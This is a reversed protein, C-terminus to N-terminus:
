TNKIEKTDPLFYCRLTIGIIILLDSAHTQHQHKFPTRSPRHDIMVTSTHSPLYVQSVRRWVGASEEEGAQRMTEQGKQECTRRAQAPKRLTSTRLRHNSGATIIQQPLSMGVYTGVLRRGDALWKKM